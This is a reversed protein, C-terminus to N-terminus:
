IWILNIVQILGEVNFSHNEKLKKWSNESENGEVMVLIINKPKENPKSINLDTVPIVTLNKLENVTRNSSLLEDVNEDLHNALKNGIIESTTINVIKMTTEPMSVNDNQMFPESANSIGVAIFLIFSLIYM